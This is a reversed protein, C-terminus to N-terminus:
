TYLDFDIRKGDLFDGASGVKRVYVGKDFFGSTQWELMEESSFSFAVQIKFELKASYIM